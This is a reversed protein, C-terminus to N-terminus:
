NGNWSWAKSVYYYYPLINYVEITA